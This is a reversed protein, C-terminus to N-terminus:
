LREGTNFHLNANVTVSQGALFLWWVSIERIIPRSSVSYGCHEVYGSVVLLDRRPRRGSQLIHHTHLRSVKGRKRYKVM